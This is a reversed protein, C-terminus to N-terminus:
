FLSIELAYSRALTEGPSVLQALPTSDPAPMEESRGKQVAVEQQSICLFCSLPGGGAQQERNLVQESGRTRVDSYKKFMERM